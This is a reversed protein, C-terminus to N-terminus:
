FLVIYISFILFYIEEIGKSDNMAVLDFSYPHLARVRLLSNVLPDGSNTWCKRKIPPTWLRRLLAAHGLSSITQSFREGMGTPLLPTIEETLHNKGAMAVHLPFLPPPDACQPAIGIWLCETVTWCTAVKQQNTGSASLIQLSVSLLLLLILHGRSSRICWYCHDLKKSFYQAFPETEGSTPSLNHGHSWSKLYM